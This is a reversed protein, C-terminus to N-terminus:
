EAVLEEIGDVLNDWSFRYNAARINQRFAEAKEEKFFSVVAETLAEPSAPPVVYGTKGHEVVEPLCGVNSAIVPVEFGYALQVVGSGTASVYPQVVLDAASFYMGVAENPIYSDFIHVQGAIGLKRIMALYKGKDKWFEGVILLQVPVRNLIAPMAQLLYSLGKYDRVFGFFLVVNGSVGIKARCQARDFGNLRFVDYTPHFRKCVEADPVIELLNRRELESHVIFFDGARLTVQTLMRDLVGSEHAEVNHCLFMIRTKSYRRVLNTLVFFQPAWFSVWWPLVLIDPEIRIIDKAAKIWSVPNLSDLVREVGAVEIPAQSPDIDSKGPFLWKPYQRKFSFFRVEHRNKLHKHLLTTYHAIGGRFPYSPGLLVIRM